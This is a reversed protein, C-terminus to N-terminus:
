PVHTAGSGIVIQWGASLMSILYSAPCNIQGTAPDPYLTTADPLHVMTPTGLGSAMKMPITVQSM